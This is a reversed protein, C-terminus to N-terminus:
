CHIIGLESSRFTTKPYAQRFCISTTFLRFRSRNQMAIKRASLSIIEERCENIVLLANALNSNISQCIQSGINIADLFENLFKNVLILSPKAIQLLLGKAM